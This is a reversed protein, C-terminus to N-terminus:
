IRVLTQLLALRVTRQLAQVRVTRRLAQVRVFRQQAAREVPLGVLYVISTEERTTRPGRLRAQQQPPQRATSDNACAQRQGMRRTRLAFQAVRQCLEVVVSASDVQSM